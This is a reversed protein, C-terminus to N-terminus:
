IYVVDDVQSQILKKIIKAEREKHFSATKNLVVYYYRDAVDKRTGQKSILITALDNEDLHDQPKKQLLSCLQDVAFCGEAINKDLCDMGIVGVVYQSEMLLQPEHDRPVKCSKRKAGDAEILVIDAMAIYEDFIADDLRSIKGNGCDKGVMVTKCAAFRKQVEEQCSCYYEQEKLMHTTTTILVRKHMKQFHRAHAMILTAKGGAGVFSIIPKQYHSYDFLPFKIMDTYKMM